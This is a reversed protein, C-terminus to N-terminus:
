KSKNRPKFVAELEKEDIVFIFLIIIFIISCTVYIDAVNFVPFNIIRFDFMDVVYGRAIRDILNGCAGSILFLGGIRLLKCKNAVLLKIYAYIMLILLISTIVLLFVIKGSFSSWAAGTNQVYTIHFVDNILAKTEGVRMNAQVFYKVLQDTLTLVLIIFIGLVLNKKASQKM